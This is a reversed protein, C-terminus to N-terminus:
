EFRPSLSFPRWSGIMYELRACLKKVMLPLRAVCVGFATPQAGPWVGVAVLKEGFSGVIVLVRADAVLGAAANEQEQLGAIEM